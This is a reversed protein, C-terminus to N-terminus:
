EGEYLHNEFGARCIAGYGGYDRMWEAVRERSPREVRMADGQRRCRVVCSAPDSFWDLLEWSHTTLLVPVERSLEELASVLRNVLSGDLFLEPHEICYLATPSAESWAITALAEIYRGVNDDAGLEVDDVGAGLGLQVRNDLREWVEGGVDRLAAIQNAVTNGGRVEWLGRIRIAQSEGARTEGVISCRYSNALDPWSLGYRRGGVGVTIEMSTARRRIRRRLLGSLEPPPAWYGRPPGDFAVPALALVRVADLVTSKGSLNEGVLVTLDGLQLDVDEALGFGRIHISTVRTM